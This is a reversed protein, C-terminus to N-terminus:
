YKVVTEVNEKQLYYNLDYIKITLNELKKISMCIYFMKLKSINNAKDEEAGISIIASVSQEVSM